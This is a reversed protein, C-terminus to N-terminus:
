INFKLSWVKWIAELVIAKSMKTKGQLRDSFIIPVEKITKCKKYARYKLEIQFAYGTTTINKYDIDILTSTKTRNFGGTLDKVPCSLIIQSYLSGGKSLLRRSLPWNSIGGGKTYRSGVIMDTSGDVKDFNALDEIRHSLDADMQQFWEFGNQVAFDMGMKYANGLGIKKPNRIYYINKDKNQVKKVFEETGDTSNDDIILLAGRDKLYSLLQPVMIELNLRENIVPLTILLEKM